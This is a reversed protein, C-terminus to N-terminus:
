QGPLITRLLLGVTPPPADEAIEGAPTVAKVLKAIDGADASQNADADVRAAHAKVAEAAAVRSAARVASQQQHGTDTM